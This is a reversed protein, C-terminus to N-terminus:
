FPLTASVCFDNGDSTSASITGGHSETIAKAVSLGIGHGGTASNRSADTRYFRDFVYKLEETKVPETTDNVVSLIAAKKSESLRMSVNGGKPTYKGANELLIAVLRRIADPSGTATIGATVDTDFTVDNSVFLARFSNATESVIDSLPMDIKETEHNQEEMRSLFVLNNTLETLRGTQQRIESIEEKEGDYELLDLNANIITLPTKIEHGADSIFRKQKEYSEAIPKVIRGSFFLFTIFVLICGFFGVGISTWLFTRFADLKRGCDLFIMQTMGGASTKLYRFQGVFGREKGSNFATVIYDKATDANVSVIRSFDTTAMRGDPTVNVTFFRSEYRVEPSQVRPLFFFSTARDSRNPQAITDLTADSDALVASYNVLNMILVLVAILIVTSVTALVTFKRKLKGIM